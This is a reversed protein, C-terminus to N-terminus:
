CARLLKAYAIEDFIIQLIDPSQKVITRLSSGHM